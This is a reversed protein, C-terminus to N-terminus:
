VAPELLEANDGGASLRLRLGRPRRRRPQGDPASDWLATMAELRERARANLDAVDARRQAIMVGDGDERARLWDRVLRERSESGTSEVMLADHGAYLAVAEEAARGARLHDLAVHEWPSAQRVNEGLEVAFGCQILGRFAGGAEIAPLQRDDGVLVLKGSAREVHTLLEALQRTAVMGAEVVLVCREPLPESGLDGLLAAVRTSSIGAGEQLEDAARRAVAVVLM